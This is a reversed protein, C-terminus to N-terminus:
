NCERFIFQLVKKELVKDVEFSQPTNVLQRSMKVMHNSPPDMMDRILRILESDSATAQRRVLGALRKAVSADNNDVFNNTRRLIRRVLPLPCSASCTLRSIVFAASVFSSLIVVTVATSHRLTHPQCLASSMRVYIGFCVHVCM